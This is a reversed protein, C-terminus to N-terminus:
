DGIFKIIVQEHKRLLRIKLNCISVNSVNSYTLTDVYMLENNIKLVCRGTPEDTIGVTFPPFKAIDYWIEVPPTEPLHSVQVKM